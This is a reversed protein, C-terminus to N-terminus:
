RSHEKKNKTSIMLNINTSHSRISLDRQLPSERTSQLVDNKSSMGIFVQITSYISQLKSEVLASWIVQNQATKSTRISAMSRPPLENMSMSNHIISDDFIGKAM